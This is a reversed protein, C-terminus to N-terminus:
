AFWARVTGCSTTGLTGTSTWSYVPWQPQIWPIMPYYPLPRYEYVKEAYLKDLIRHLEEAESSTLEIQRGGIEIILKLNM